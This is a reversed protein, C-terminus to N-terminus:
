ASRDGRPRLVTMLLLTVIALLALLVSSGYAGVTDFNEYAANM